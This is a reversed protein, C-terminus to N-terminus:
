RGCDPGCAADCDAGCPQPLVGLGVRESGVREYWLRQVDPSLHRVALQARRSQEEVTLTGELEYRGMRLFGGTWYYRVDIKYRRQLADFHWDTVSYAARGDRATELKDLMRDLAEQAYYVAESFRESQSTPRVWRTLTAVSDPRADLRGELRLMVEVSDGRLLPDNLRIWFDNYGEAKSLDFVGERATFDLKVADTPHGRVFLVWRAPLTAPVPVPQWAGDQGAREQAWRVAYRLKDTDRDVPYELEVRARLRKPSATLVEQECVTGSAAFHGCLDLFFAAENGLLPDPVPVVLPRKPHAAYGTYLTRGRSDSVLVTLSDPVVEGGFATRRAFQPAVRLTDWGLRKVRMSEVRISGDGCGGLAVTLVLFASVLLRPLSYRFRKCCTM